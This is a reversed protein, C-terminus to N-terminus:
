WTVISSDPLWATRSGGRAAGRAGTARLCGAYLHGVAVLNTNPRSQFQIRFPFPWQWDIEIQVVILNYGPAINNIRMTAAGIFPSGGLATLECINAFVISDPVVYGPLLGISENWLGNGTNEYPWYTVM